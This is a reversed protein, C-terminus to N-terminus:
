YSKCTNTCSSSSPNGFYRMQPNSKYYNKQHSLAKIDQRELKKIMSFKARQNRTLCKKFARNEEDVISNIERKIRNVVRKQQFIECESACACRLAKIKYSEKLLEEFKKEYLPNNKCIMEERKRVQEETLNIANSVVARENQIRNMYIKYKKAVQSCEIGSNSLSCIGAFVESCTLFICFIILFIERLM